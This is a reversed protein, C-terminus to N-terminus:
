SGRLAKELMEARRSPLPPLFPGFLSEFNLLQWIGSSQDSIHFNLRNGKGSSLLRPDWGRSKEVGTTGLLSRAGSTTEFYTRVRERQKRELQFPRHQSYAQIAASHFPYTYNLMTLRTRLRTPM